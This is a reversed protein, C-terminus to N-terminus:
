QRALFNEDDFQWQPYFTNGKFKQVSATFLDHALPLPSCRDEAHSISATALLVIYLINRMRQAQMVDGFGSAM